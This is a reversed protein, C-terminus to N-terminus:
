RFMYQMEDDAYESLNKTAVARREQKRSRAKQDQKLASIFGLAQKSRNLRLLLLAEEVDM